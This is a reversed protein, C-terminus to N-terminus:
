NLTPREDEGEVDAKTQIAPAAVGVATLNPVAVPAQQVADQSVEHM